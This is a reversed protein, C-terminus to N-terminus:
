NYFQMFVNDQQKIQLWNTDGSYSNANKLIDRMKLGITDGSLNGRTQVNSCEFSHSSNGNAYWSGTITVGKPTTVTFTKEFFEISYIKDKTYRQVSGEKIYTLKWEQERFIANIDDESVCSIAVFPLILAFIAKNIQKAIYKM